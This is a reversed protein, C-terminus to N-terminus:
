IHILSLEYLGALPYIRAFFDGLGRAFDLFMEVNAATSSLYSSGVVVGILAVFMLALGAYRLRKISAGALAVLAGLLSALVAPIMPVALASLIYAVYFMPAPHAFMAYAVGGPLFILLTFLLNMGYIKLVRATAVTRAPIPLSLLMDLDRAGFLADPAKVITTILATLAVVSALMVPFVCLAGISDLAYAIGLCYAFAVGLAAVGGLLILALLWKAGRRRAPDNLRRNIGLLELRNLRLLLRLKSM